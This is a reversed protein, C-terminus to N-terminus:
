GLISAREKWPSDPFIKDLRFRNYFYLNRSLYEPQKIEMEKFLIALGARLDFDELTLSDKLYLIQCSALVFEDLDTVTLKNYSQNNKKSNYLETLVDRAQDFKQDKLLNLFKLTNKAESNKISINTQKKLFIEYFRQLRVSFCGTKDKNLFFNEIEDLKKLDEKSYLERKIKKYHNLFAKRFNNILREKKEKSAFFFIRNELNEFSEKLDKFNSLEGVMLYDRYDMGLKLSFFSSITLPFVFNWFKNQFKSSLCSLRSPKLHIDCDIKDQTLSTLKLSLDKYAIQHEETKEWFWGNQLKNKLHDVAERLFIVKYERFEEKSLISKLLCKFAYGSCSNGTQGQMWLRKDSSPPLIKGNLAEVAEYLVKSNHGSRFAHFTSTIKIFEILNALDIEDIELTTQILKKGKDDVKTHHQECGDGANYVRLIFRMDSKCEVSGAIVHGGFLNMWSLSIGLIQKPKLTSIKQILDRILFHNNIGLYDFKKEYELISTLCNKAILANSSKMEKLAALMPPITFYPFGGQLTRRSLHEAETFVAARITNGGSLIKTFLSQIAIVGGVSALHTVTSCGFFATISISTVASLTKPATLNSIFQTSYSPTFPMENNFYNV